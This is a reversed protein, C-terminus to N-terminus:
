SNVTHYRVIVKEETVSSERISIAVAMSDLVEQATILPASGDLIASAFSQAVVDRNYHVHAKPARFGGNSGSELYEFGFHSYEFTKLTGHVALRHGHPISTALSSSVHGIIGSPFWLTGVEYDDIPFGLNISNRSSRLGLVSVPREGTLWLTLDILHIGGGLMASYSPQEGRWGNHIKQFRGYLYQGEIHSISGLEVKRMRMFLERFVPSARLVHNASFRVHPHRRLAAAIQNLESTNLCIPKECFVHKGSEISSVVIEAHLQDPTAVVILDIDEAAVVNRWDTTSRTTPVLEKIIGFKSEDTDCVASVKSQGLQTFSRVHSLGIGLGIVGVRLPVATDYVSTNGSM